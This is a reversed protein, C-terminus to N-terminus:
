QGHSRPDDPERDSAHDGTRLDQRGSGGGAVLACRRDHASRNQETGLLTGRTMTVLGRRTVVAIAFSAVAGSLSVNLVYQALFVNAKRAIAITEAAVLASARRVDAPCRRLM